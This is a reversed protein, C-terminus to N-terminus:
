TCSCASPKQSDFLYPVHMGVTWMETSNQVIGVFTFTLADIGGDETMELWLEGGHALASNDIFVGAGGARVLIAAAKMITRAAEMSGGNGSLTVNVTYGNATALEKETPPRRCSSRFIGPFQDDAPLFGMDIRAGDPLILTQPTVRCSKPLRGILDRPHSWRGPIRLDVIISPATKNPQENTIKADKM